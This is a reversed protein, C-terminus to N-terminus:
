WAMPAYGDKILGSIMGGGYEVQVGLAAIREDMGDGNAIVGAIYGHRM